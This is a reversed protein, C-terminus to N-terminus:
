SENTTLLRPALRKMLEIEISEMHLLSVTIKGIPDMRNIPLKIRHKSITTIDNISAYSVKDKAKYHQKVERILELDKNILGIFDINKLNVMGNVFPLDDNHKMLYDGIISLIPLIERSNDALIKNLDDFENALNPHEKIYTDIIKIEKTRNDDIAKLYDAINVALNLVNITEKMINDFIQNVLEKGLSLNYKKNKSTLPIVTITENVPNDNQNLTIAFHYGSFESGISTGFNVYVISGREYIKHNIKRKQTNETTFSKSEFQIWRDLNAFKPNRCNRIISQLRHSCQEITKCKATIEEDTLIGTKEKVAM